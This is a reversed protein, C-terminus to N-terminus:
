TGLPAPGDSRASADGRHPRRHWGPRQKHRLFCQALSGTEAKRGVTQARIADGPLGKVIARWGRHGGVSGTNM